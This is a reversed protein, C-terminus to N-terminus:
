ICDDVVLAAAAIFVVVVACWFFCEQLSSCGYYSISQFVLLFYPVLCCDVGQAEARSVATHHTMTLLFRRQAEEETYQVLRKWLQENAESEDKPIERAGDMAFAAALVQSKRSHKLRPM